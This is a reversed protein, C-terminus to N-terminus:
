RSYSDKRNRLIQLEAFEINQSIEADFAKMEEAFNWTYSDAQIQEAIKKYYSVVFQLDPLPVVNDPLETILRGVEDFAEKHINEKVLVSSKHIYDNLIENGCEDLNSIEKLSSIQRSFFNIHQIATIFNWFTKLNADHNLWSDMNLQKINPTPDTKYTCYGVISTWSISIAYNNIPLRCEEDFYPILNVNNIILSELLRNNSFEKQPQIFAALAEICQASKETQDGTTLSYWISLEGDNFLINHPISVATLLDGVNKTLRGVVNQKEKIFSLYQTKINFNANFVRMILTHWVVWLQYLGKGEQTSITANSYEPFYLDIQKVLSAEVKLSEQANFTALRINQTLQNESKLIDVTAQLFQNSFYQVSSLYSNFTKNIDKLREQYEKGSDLDTRSNETQSGFPSSDSQPLLASEIQRIRMIVDESQSILKVAYGKNQVFKVLNTTLSNLCQVITQRKENLTDFYEAVNKTTHLYDVMNHFMATLSTMEQLPLNKKTIRKETPINFKNFQDIFSDNILRAAYEEKDPFARRCLDVIDLNMTEFYTGRPQADEERIAFDTFWAADVRDGSMQFRIINYHRRLDYIFKQEIDKILETANTQYSKLGLLLTAMVKLSSRQAPQGVFSFGPVKLYSAYYLIGGLAEWDEATSPVFQVVHNKMFAKADDLIHMKSPLQSNLREVKDWVNRFLRQLSGWVGNDAFYVDALIPWNSGLESEFEEFLNKNDNLYASVGISLHTRLISYYLTPLTLDYIDQKANMQEKTMGSLILNQLYIYQSGAFIAPLIELADDIFRKKDSGYITQLVIKSRIPHIGVVSHRDESTYKAFENEITDLIAYIRDADVLGMRHYLSLNLGGALYNALSVHKIVKLTSLDPEKYFGKIQSAIKAKLSEGQTLLYTYELLSDGEGYARWVENFSGYHLTAKTQLGEFIERANDETLSLKMDNIDASAKLLDKSMNWDSDRLTVLLKLNKFSQLRSILLTWCTDAPKNDLYVLIPLDRSKALLTLSALISNINSSNVNNVEYSIQDGYVEHIYQYALTSKGEGSAGHVVLIQHQRLRDAIRRIYDSRLVPINSLVDYYTASSGQLYNRELLRLDVDSLKYSSFPIIDKGFTDDFVKKDTIFKSVVDVQDCLDHYSIIRGYEACAEIWSLLNSIYVEADIGDFSKNIQCKCHKYLKNEDVKSTQIAKSIVYANKQVDKGLVPSQKIKKCLTKNNSLDTSVPGFSVLTGKVGANNARVQLIRSYFSTRKKPSILDSFTVTEQLNKVQILEIVEGGRMIDLDEVGEPKYLLDKDADSLIRHLTYLFQTRFGKLTPSASM